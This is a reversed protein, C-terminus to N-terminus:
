RRKKKAPKRKVEVTGFLALGNITVHPSGAVPEEHPGTYEGLVPTGLTSVTVGEGVLVKVEGFVANAQITIEPGALLAERLDLHVSGFVAVGAYDVPVLWTGERKTESFIAVANQNVPTGSPVVVQGPGSVAPVDSRAASRGPLMPPLGPVRAGPLDRVAPELDRYTRASYVVDLRDSMEDLTLRGDGAAQRITEAVTERDADSCRLDRPDM